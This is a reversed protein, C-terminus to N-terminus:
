RALEKRNDGAEAALHELIQENIRAPQEFSALHAAREIEVFRSDAIGEAILRGHPAPTAPDESASLVLTPAEIAALRGRLDMGEIAECCSAYGTAPVAAIMARMREVTRPEREAFAATFWRGVVEAAIAGTGEARVRAARAAWAEPPGLRASACCLVLREVREPAGAGVQMAIMAGLSVGCISAREIGLCDLLLVVDEGLEELSYPGDPVPSGGHGRLDVSIVRLREALAGVQPEWMSLDSGLSGLLLLVPGDKPGAALHHPECAM